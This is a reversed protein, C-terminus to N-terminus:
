ASSISLTCEAATMLPIMLCYPLLFVEDLNSSRFEESSRLPKVEYKNGQPDKCLMLQPSVLIHLYAFQISCSNHMLQVYQCRSVSMNLWKTNMHKFAYSSAIISQLIFSWVENGRKSDLVRLSIEDGEGVNIVTPLNEDCMELFVNLLFVLYTYQKLSAHADNDM